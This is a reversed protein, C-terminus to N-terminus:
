RHTESDRPFLLALLLPQGLDLLGLLCLLLCGGRLLKPPCDGGPAEPSTRQPRASRGEVDSVRGCPGGRPPGKVYVYM